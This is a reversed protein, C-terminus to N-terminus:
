QEQKSEWLQLHTDLVAYDGDPLFRHDEVHCNSPPNSSPSCSKTAVVAYHRGTAARWIVRSFLGSTELAPRVHTAFNDAYEDLYPETARLLSFLLANARQAAYAPSEFDMEGMWLQGGPKLIRHAERIVNVAADAPLEHLVFMIQVIDVSNSDLQTDEANAVRFEVTNKARQDIANVWAERPTNNSSSDNDSAENMSALPALDLLKKGVHVYYPSLDIGIVKDLYAQRTSETMKTKELDEVPFKTTALNRSSLGTGCGFDVAVVNENKHSPLRAGAQVLAREFAQRFVTEGNAGHQPFNRAGVARSAIEQEMAADMCLNGKEYAHFASKAYYDPYKMTAAHEVDYNNDNGDLSLQNSIWDKALRWEIGNAEATKVMTNRAQPVLVYTWLPSSLAFNLLSQALGQRPAYYSPSTTSSSSSSTGTETKQEQEMSQKTAWIPQRPWQSSLQRQPLAVPCFAVNEVVLLSLCLLLIPLCDNIVTM